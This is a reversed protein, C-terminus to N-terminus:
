IMKLMSIEKESLFRHRGRAIDKKTLGAFYVRDLKVIKYGLNEFVNKLTSNKGIHIEVGVEKKPSNQIYSIAEIDVKYGDVMVGDVIKQMDSSKLNKDLTVHFIKKVRKRPNTLKKSLEGDNTFLLLGSTQKNLRGVPYIREKCAKDILEFVNKKRPDDTLTLFDKPKNLLLYRKTESNITENNFKVTDSELVRFGMEIIIKGNVEVLGAKILDDAERRSSIGSHAIFQNLRMGSKTSEVAQKTIRKKFSKNYPKPGSKKFDSNRSSSKSSSYKGKSANSSRGKNASRDVRKNIRKAM